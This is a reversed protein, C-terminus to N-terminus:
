GTADVAAALESSLEYPPEHPVLKVAKHLQDTALLGSIDRMVPTVDTITTIWEDLYHDVAEGSLGIQIARFNQANHHLDREPDWQIRVPSTKLERQWADKAQDRRPHSLAAHALAWEFGERTIDIALIREQGPKKGYGCRYAMWRFSPKIWTMRDRKFPEVFTQKELAAEAISPSYAQYVRLTTETQAARIQRDPVRQEEFM